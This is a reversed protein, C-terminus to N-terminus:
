GALAAAATLIMVLLAVLCYLAFKRDIPHSGTAREHSTLGRTESRGRSLGSLMNM